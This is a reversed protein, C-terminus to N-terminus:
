NGGSAEKRLIKDIEKRDQSEWGCLMCKGNKIRRKRCRPCPKNTMTM